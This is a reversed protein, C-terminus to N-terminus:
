WLETHDETHNETQAETHNEAQDETHIESQVNVDISISDENESEYDIEIEEDTIGYIMDYNEVKIEFIYLLKTATPILFQTMTEDKNEWM